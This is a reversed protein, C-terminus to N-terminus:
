ILSNIRDVGTKPENVSNESNKLSQNPFNENYNDNDNDNDNDTGFKGFKGFKEGSDDAAEPELLEPYEARITSLDESITSPSRGLEAAIDKQKMGTLYLAAIKKLRELKKAQTAKVKKEYKTKDKEVVKEQNKLLIGIMFDDSSIEGTLTLEIVSIALEGAQQPNQAYLMKIQEWSGDYVVGSQRVPSTKFETIMIQEQVIIKGDKITFINYCLKRRFDFKRNM